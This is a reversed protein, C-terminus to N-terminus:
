VNWFSQIEDAALPREFFAIEDIKGQVGQGFRVQRNEGVRAATSRLFPEAGGDVWLNVTGKERVLTAMHWQDAALRESRFVGDLELQVTHDGFQKAVLSEGMPGVCLTGQRESAGSREGLWFWFSISYNKSGQPLECTLEGGALHLSRNIQDPGSFASPSLEEGAGIGTGSGVGPL